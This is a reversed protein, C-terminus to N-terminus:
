CRLSQKLLARSAVGFYLRTLRGASTKRRLAEFTLPGREAHMDNAITRVVEESWEYRVASTVLSM